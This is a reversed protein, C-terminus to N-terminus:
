VIHGLLTVYWKGAKPPPCPGYAVTGSGGESSSMHSAACCWHPMVTCSSTVFLNKAPPHITESNSSSCMHGVSHHWSCQHQAMHHWVHPVHPHPSAAWHHMMGCAVLRVNQSLLPVLHHLCYRQAGQSSTANGPHNGLDLLLPLGFIHGEMHLPGVPHLM